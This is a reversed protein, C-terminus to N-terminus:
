ETAHGQRFKAGKVVRRFVARDYALHGADSVSMQLEDTIDQVWRRKPRGRKRRGPIYGEMIRRELGEHRKIHGFYKMKRQKIQILLWSESIHLEQRISKNTRKETWSIKLVRRYCKHEFANIHKEAAKNLTWTECAYTAIPFICARLFRIKTKGDTGGWLKKMQKLKQLAISTRRKIEKITDGNNTILSGLYEFSAVVELKQSNVSIENMMHLKDTPM